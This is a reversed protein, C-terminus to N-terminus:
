GAPRAHRGRAPLLQPAAGRGDAAPVTMATTGANNAVGEATVEWQGIGVIGEVVGIDIKERDLNGGQEIHLEVYAALGALTIM